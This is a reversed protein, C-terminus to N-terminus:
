KLEDASVMIRLPPTLGNLSLTPTAKAGTGHAYWVVNPQNIMRTGFLVPIPKGQEATPIGTLEEPSPTPPNPPTQLMAYVSMGISIVTLVIAIVPLVWPM